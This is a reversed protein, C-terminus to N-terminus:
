IIGWQAPSFTSKLFISKFYDLLYFMLFVFWTLASLYALIIILSAVGNLKESLFNLVKYVSFWILCLPPIVLYYAPKMDNSVAPKHKYYNFFLIAVKSIFLIIAIILSIMTMIVISYSQLTIGLSAGLLSVAGFALVNLLWSFNFRKLTVRARKFELICAVELVVVTMWLLIFLIGGFPAISKIYKTISPIFFSLPGFISVMTMPLSILPSFLASQKLPDKIIKKFESPDILWRAGEKLYMFTMLLHLFLFIGMVVTLSWVEINNWDNEIFYKMNFKSTHVLYTTKLYNYPMLSIGAAALSGQFWLPSFKM